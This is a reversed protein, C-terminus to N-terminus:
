RSPRRWRFDEDIQVLRPLLRREHRLDGIRTADTKRRITVQKM